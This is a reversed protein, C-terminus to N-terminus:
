HKRGQQKDWADLAAFLLENLKMDADVAAQRFRKRFAPSVKFNLPELNATGVREEGEGRKPRKVPTRERPAAQAAERGEEARPAPAVAPMRQSAEPMPAAVDATLAALDIAPRKAM